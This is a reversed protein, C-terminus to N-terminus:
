LTQKAEEIATEKKVLLKQDEKKEAILAKFKVELAQKIRQTATLQELAKDKQM